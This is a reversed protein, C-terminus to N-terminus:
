NPNMELRSKVHEAKKCGNDDGLDCAKQFDKLANDFQREKYFIVGRNFYALAYTPALGIANTFDEIAKEHQNTKYYALGRKTYIKANRIKVIAKTLAEIAKDYEGNKYYNRGQKLSMEADVQIQKNGSVSSKGPLALGKQKLSDTNKSKAHKQLYHYLKSALPRNLEKLREYTELAAKNDGLGIYTRGLLFFAESLQSDLAIASKCDPLAYKYKRLNNYALCKYILPTTNQPEVQEWKFAVDILTEWDKKEILIDCREKYPKESLGAGETKTDPEIPPSSPKNDSKHSTLFLLSIVILGVVSLIINREFNSKPKPNSEPLTKDFHLDNDATDNKHHEAEETQISASKTNIVPNTSTSTDSTNKLEEIRAGLAEFGKKEVNDSSM